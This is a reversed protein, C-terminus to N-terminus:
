FHLAPLSHRVLCSPCPLTRPLIAGSLLPEFHYTGNHLSPRWCRKEPGGFVQPALVKAPSGQCVQPALVKEPFGWFGAAGASKKPVMGDVWFGAAGIVKEFAFLAVAFLRKELEDGIRINRRRLGTSDRLATRSQISILTKQPGCDASILDDGVPQRRLSAM